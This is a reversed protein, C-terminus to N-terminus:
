RGSLETGPFYKALIRQYPIGGRAMGRAGWQCLGVGHGWGAGRAEVRDGVHFLEFCTSYLNVLRGRADRFKLGRRIDDGALIRGNVRLRTVRGGASRQLIEADRVQWAPWSATWRFYSSANCAAPPEAEAGLRLGEAVPAADLTCAVSRLYPIPATLFVNENDETRGGCTSHYCVYRALRGQWQLVQGSTEDVARRVEATEGRAGAYVQFDTGDGFEGNRLHALAYTRAVVAQAKLAEIETRGGIERAVVGYLYQELPLVNVVADPRFLLAGRYPRGNFQLHGEARLVARTCDEYSGGTRRLHLAAATPVIEYSGPAMARGNLLWPSASSLRWPPHIGLRVFVTVDRETGLAAAALVLAALSLLLGLRATRMGARSAEM